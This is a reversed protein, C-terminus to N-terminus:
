SHQEGGTAGSQELIPRGSDSALPTRGDAQMWTPITTPGLIYDSEVFTLVLSVV